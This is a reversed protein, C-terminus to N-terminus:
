AEGGAKFTQGSLQLYLNRFVEFDKIGPERFGYIMQDFAKLPDRFLAQLNRQTALEGLYERNTLSERFDVVRKEELLLMAALTLLRIGEEFRGEKSYRVARDYLSEAEARNEPLPSTGLLSAGQAKMNEQISRYIFYGVVLFVIVTVVIMLNYLLNM